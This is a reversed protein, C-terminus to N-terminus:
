IFVCDRGCIHLLVSLWAECILLQWTPSMTVLPFAAARDVRVTFGGRRVEVYHSLLVVCSETDSKTGRGPIGCCCIACERSATGAVQM